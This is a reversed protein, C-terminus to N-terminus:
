TNQKKDRYYVNQLSSKPQHTLLYIFLYIFLHVLKLNIIISVGHKRNCVCVCVCVFLVKSQIFTYHCGVKNIYVLSFDSSGRRAWQCDLGCMLM